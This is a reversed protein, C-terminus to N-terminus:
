NLHKRYEDNTEARKLSDTALKLFEPRHLFEGILLALFVSDPLRGAEASGVADDSMVFELGGHERLVVAVDNGDLSVKQM